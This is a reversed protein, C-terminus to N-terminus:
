MVEGMAYVLLSIQQPLTIDVADTDKSFRSLIRGIPTSDFFKMPAHMIGCLITQQISIAAFLCGLRPVLDGLFAGIAPVFSAVCKITEIEYIFM